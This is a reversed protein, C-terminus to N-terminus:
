AYGLSWFTELNKASDEDICPPPERLSVSDGHIEAIQGTLSPDSVLQQVGKTLTSMPTMIMHKFLAKDPAINTALVAPALANIQIAQKQLPKALSRVLNNVGAKSAGYLPAVPFPYLGANSATCIISGRSAVTAGNVVANKRIYHIALKVTYITGILNVNLTHLAPKSPTEEDVILSPEKSIGANAMVVDIRGQERHIQEFVAALEDWNSIDAQMFSFSADSFESSMSKVINAGQPNVDLV